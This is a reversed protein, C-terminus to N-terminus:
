CVFSEGLQHSALKGAPYQHDARKFGYNLLYRVPDGYEVAVGVRDGENTSQGM